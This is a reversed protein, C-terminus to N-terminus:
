ATPIFSGRISGRNESVRRQLAAPRIQHLFFTDCVVKIIAVDKLDVNANDVAPSDFMQFLETMHPRHEVGPFSEDFFRVLAPVFPMEPNWYGSQKMMGRLSQFFNGFAIGECQWHVDNLSLFNIGSLYYGYPEQQDTEEPQPLALFCQSVLGLDRATLVRNSGWDIKLIPTREVLLNHKKSQLDEITEYYRSIQQPMRWWWFGLTALNLAAVFHRALGWGLTWLGEAPINDLLCIDVLLHDKKQSTSLKFLDVTRNWDVLEKSRISHSGTLIKIRIKWKEKTGVAPLSRSRQLEAVAADRANADAEDFQQKVWLIWARADALEALKALADGSFIFGRTQPDAAAALFWAQLDLDAQSIDDRPVAAEALDLHAAALDILNTTEEATITDAPITLRDDDHDVYLGTLRKAHIHKAVGQMRDVRQQTWKESLFGAGFFCWFLKRIHDQTHKQMWPPQVDRTSAMTQIALLERRGLEELSLAALHYAINCHGIEQVARASNLLARAHDVCARMAAQKQPDLPRSSNPKETM